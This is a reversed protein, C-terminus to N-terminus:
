FYMKIFHMTIRIQINLHYWRSLIVIPFASKARIYRPFVEAEQMLEKKILDDQPHIHLFHTILKYLLELFMSSKGASIYPQETLFVVCVLLPFFGWVRILYSVNTDQVPQSIYHLLKM